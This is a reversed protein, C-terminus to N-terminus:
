EIVKYSQGGEIPLFTQKIELSDDSPIAPGAIYIREIYGGRGDPFTVLLPDGEKLPALTKEFPEYPYLTIDDSM